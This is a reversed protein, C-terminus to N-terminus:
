TIIKDHQISYRLRNPYITFLYLQALDTFVFYLFNNKMKRHFAQNM